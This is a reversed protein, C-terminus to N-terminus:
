DVRNVVLNVATGRSAPTGVPLSQRLVYGDMHDEDSQYTVRGVSLGKARLRSTAFRLRMGTAKPVTVSGSGAAPPSVRRATPPPPPRPPPDKGPTAPTKAVLLHVSSGPAVQTGNTPNSSIVTGEAVGEAPPQHTTNGVKLGMGGLRNAAVALALSQLNPVTVSAPGASLTAAVNSGTEVKTGALPVQRAVAGKSVLPDAVSGMVRLNLKAAQAAERAREAPMGVLEPVNTQNSSALSAHSYFHLGGVTAASTLLATIIVVGTRSRGHFPEGYEGYPDSQNPDGWQGTNPRGHPM